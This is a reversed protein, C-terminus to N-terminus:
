GALLLLLVTPTVASGVTTVLIAGSVFAPRVLLTLM